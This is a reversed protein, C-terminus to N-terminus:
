THEIPAEPGGDVRRSRLHELDAPEDVDFDLATGRLVEVALSRLHAENVHRAFSGAGYHFEFKSGSPIRLVNTGDDFRDPVLTVGEFAALASLGSPFPLDSHAITIWAFGEAALQAVGETVAANLGKRPSWIVRAGIQSAWQAVGDDDCVVFVALPSAAVVVGTALEEALTSREEHSLVSRLRDKADAFRKVPILVAEDARSGDTRPAQPVGPDSVVGTYPGQWPADKLM